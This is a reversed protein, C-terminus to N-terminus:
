RRESKQQDSMKRERVSAGGRKKAGGMSTPPITTAFQLHHRQQPPAVIPNLKQPQMPNSTAPGMVTARVNSDALGTTTIGGGQAVPMFQTKGVDNTTVPRSAVNSIQNEGSVQINMANMGGGISGNPDNSQQQQQESLFVTDGEPTFFCDGFIDDLNLTAPTGRTSLAHQAHSSLPAASFTPAQISNVNVNVNATGAAAAQPVPDQAIPNNPPNINPDVKPAMTETPNSSM